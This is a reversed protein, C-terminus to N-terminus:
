LTNPKTERMYSLLKNTTKIENIFSNSIEELSEGLLISNIYDESYTELNRIHDRIKSITKLAMMVSEKNTHYGVIVSDLLSDGISVSFCVPDKVNFNLAYLQKNNSIDGQSSIYANEDLNFFPHYYVNDNDLGDVSITCYNELHSFEKLQEAWQKSKLEQNNM